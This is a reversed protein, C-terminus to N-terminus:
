RKLTFLIRAAEIRDRQQKSFKTKYKIDHIIINYKNPNLMFSDIIYDFDSTHAYPGFFNLILLYKYIDRKTNALLRKGFTMYFEKKVSGRINRGFPRHCHASFHYVAIYKALHFYNNKIAIKMLKNISIGYAIYYYIIQPEYRLNRYCDDDEMMKLVYLSDSMFKENNDTFLIYARFINNDDYYYKNSKDYISGFVTEINNSMVLQNDCNNLM